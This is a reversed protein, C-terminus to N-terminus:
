GRFNADLAKDTKDTEEADETYFEIFFQDFEMLNLLAPIGTGFISVNDHSYELDPYM